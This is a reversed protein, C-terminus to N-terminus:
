LSPCTTLKAQMACRSYFAIKKRTKISHNFFSKLFIHYYFFLAKFVCCFYSLYNNIFFRLYKISWILWEGLHKPLLLSSTANTSRHFWLMGFSQMRDPAALTAQSLRRSHIATSSVCVFSLSLLPHELSQFYLPISKEENSRTRFM